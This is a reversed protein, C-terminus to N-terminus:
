GLGRGQVGGCPQPPVRLAVRDVAGIVSCGGPRAVLAHGRHGVQRDADVLNCVQRVLVDGIQRHTYALWPVPEPELIITDFALGATRVLRGDHEGCRVGAQM